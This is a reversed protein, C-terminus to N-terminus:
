EKSYKEIDELVWKEVAEPGHILNNVEGKDDPKIQYMWGKGYCDENILGPDTELEENVAV